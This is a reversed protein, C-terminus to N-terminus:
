FPQEEGADWGEGDPEAPEVVRPGAFALDRPPPDPLALEWRAVPAPQARAGFARAVKETTPTIAYVAGAAYFQTAVPAEADGAFVDIRLFAAGALEVESVRGALRRHGMLELVAWEDFREDTM